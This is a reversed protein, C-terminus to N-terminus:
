VGSELQGVAQQRPTCRVLHVDDQVQVGRWATLAVVLANRVIVRGFGRKPLTRFVSGFHDSQPFANGFVVDTFLPNCPVVQEVLGIPVDGTARSQAVEVLLAGFGDAGHIGIVDNEDLAIPKGVIEGSKRRRPVILHDIRRVLVPTFVLGHVHGKCRAQAVLVVHGQVEPFAAFVAVNPEAIGNPKHLVQVHTPSPPWQFFDFANRARQGDDLCFAVLGQQVIPVAVPRLRRLSIGHISQHFQGLAELGFIARALDIHRVRHQALRIGILGQRKM